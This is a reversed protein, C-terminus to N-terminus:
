SLVNLKILSAFELSEAMCPEMIALLTGAQDVRSKSMQM